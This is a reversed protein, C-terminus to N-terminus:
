CYTAPLWTGRPSSVFFPDLLTEPSLSFPVFALRLGSGLSCQFNFLDTEAGLALEVGEPAM